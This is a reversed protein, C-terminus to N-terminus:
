AMSGGFGGVRQGRSARGRASFWHANTQFIQFASVDDADQAVVVAVFCSRQADVAALQVAHQFAEVDLGVLDLCRLGLM